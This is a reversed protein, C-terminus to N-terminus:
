KKSHIKSLLILIVSCFFAYTISATIHNHLILALLYGAILITISIIKQTKKQKKTLEFKSSEIPALLICIGICSLYVACLQISNLEIKNIVFCDSMGLLSSIIICTIQNPAHLGGAHHRFLSFATLWFLTELFSNTIIGWVSLLLITIATNLFCELGYVYVEIQEEDHVLEAHSILYNIIRKSCRTIM